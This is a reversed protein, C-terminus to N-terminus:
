LCVFKWVLHTIFGVCQGGLTTFFDPFLISKTRMHMVVFVQYAGFDCFTSGLIEPSRLWAAIIGKIQQVISVTCCKSLTPFSSISRCTTTFAGPICTDLCSASTEEVRLVL